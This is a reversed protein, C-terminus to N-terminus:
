EQSAGSEFVASPLTHSGCGWMWRLNRLSCLWVGIRQIIGKPSPFSNESGKGVPTAPLSLSAQVASDMKECDLTPSSPASKRTVEQQRERM